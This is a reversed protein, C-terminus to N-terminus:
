WGSCCFATGHLCIFPALLVALQVLAAETDHSPFFCFLFLKRKGAIM